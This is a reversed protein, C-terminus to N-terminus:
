WQLGQEPVHIVLDGETTINFNGGTLEVDERMWKVLPRPAGFVRCRMVAESGDVKTLNEPGEKIEPPISQVNIFVDKYVYGISNTANCGYNGTDKKTLDTIIISDDSIQRRPNPEAQEIPKGNHVWKIQPNPTGDAKCRIVATEGEALNQFQPEETFFPAADKYESM